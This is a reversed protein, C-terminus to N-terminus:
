ARQRARLNKEYWAEKIAPPVTTKMHREYEEPNRYYLKRPEDNQRCFKRWQQDNAFMTDKRTLARAVGTVDKVIFYLDQHKSGDVHETIVNCSAMRIRANCLAPTSWCEIKELKKDGDENVVEKYHKYYDPNSLKYLENKVRQKMIVTDVTLNDSVSLEDIVLDDPVAADDALYEEAYM